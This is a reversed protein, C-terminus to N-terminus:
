GPCNIWCTALGNTGTSAETSFAFVCEEAGDAFDLATGADTTGASTLAKNEGIVAGDGAMVEGMGRKLIWGYSGAAITHQAVGLLRIAPILTGATTLMGDANTTTVDRMVINGAAFSATPEDNFVYVWVRPGSNAPPKSTTVTAQSTAPSYFEQGLPYMASSDVETIDIVVDAAHM